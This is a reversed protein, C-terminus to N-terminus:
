VFNENFINKIKTKQNKQFKKKIFNQNSLNFFQASKVLIMKQFNSNKFYQYRIKGIKEGVDDFFM